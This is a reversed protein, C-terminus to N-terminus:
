TAGLYYASVQVDFEVEAYSGDQAPGYNWSFGGLSARAGATLLQGLTPDNRLAYGFLALLEACRTRRDAVSGTGTDGTAVSLTCHVSYSESSIHNGDDTTSGDVSSEEENRSFGICLFEDPVADVDPAGDYVTVGQAALATNGLQVLAALVGPVTTFIAPM